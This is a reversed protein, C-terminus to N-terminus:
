AINDLSTILDYIHIDVPINLLYTPRRVLLKFLSQIVCKSILHLYLQQIDLWLHFIQVFLITNLSRFEVTHELRYILTPFHLNFNHYQIIKNKSRFNAWTKYHVIFFAVCMITPWSGHSDFPIKLILHM